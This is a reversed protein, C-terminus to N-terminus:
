NGENLLKKLGKLFAIERRIADDLVDDTILQREISCKGNITDMFYRATLGDAIAWFREKHEETIHKPEKQMADVMTEAIEQMKNIKTKLTM